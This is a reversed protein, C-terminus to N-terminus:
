FLLKLLCKSVLLVKICIIGTVIDFLFREIRVFARRSLPDSAVRKVCSITSYNSKFPFLLRKDTFLATKFFDSTSDLSTFKSKDESECGFLNFISFAQTTELKSTFWLFKSM